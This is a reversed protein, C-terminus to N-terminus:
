SAMRDNSGNGLRERSTWREHTAWTGDPVLRAVDDPTHERWLYCGSVLAPRRKPGTAAEIAELVAEPARHGAPFALWCNCRNGDPHAATAPFPLETFPTSTILDHDAWWGGHEYLLGARAVNAAHLALPRGTILHATADILDTIWTPLTDRTWDKVVGFTPRHDVPPPPGEWYRHILM